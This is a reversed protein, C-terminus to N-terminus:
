WFLTRLYKLAGLHLFISYYKKPSKKNFEQAVAEMKKEYDWLFIEPFAYTENIGSSGKNTAQHFHFHLWSWSVAGICLFLVSPIRIQSALEAWPKGDCTATKITRCGDHCIPQIDSSVCM